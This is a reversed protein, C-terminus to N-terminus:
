FLFGFYICTQIFLYMSHKILFLTNVSNWLVKWWILLKVKGPLYWRLWTILPFTMLSLALQSESAEQCFAIFSAHDLDLWSSSWVFGLHPAKVFYRAELPFSLWPFVWSSYWVSLSSHFVLSHIFSLTFLALLPIHHLLHCLSSRCGWSCGRLHGSHPSVYTWTSCRVTLVCVWGEGGAEGSHQLVSLRPEPSSTVQGFWLALFCGFKFVPDELVRLGWPASM